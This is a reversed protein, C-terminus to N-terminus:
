FIESTRLGRAYREYLRRTARAQGTLRVGGPSGTLVRLCRSTAMCARVTSRQLRGAFPSWRAREIGLKDLV